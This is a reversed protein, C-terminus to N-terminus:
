HFAAKDMAAIQDPAYGAQVLEMLLAHPDENITKAKPPEMPEPLMLARHRAEGLDEIISVPRPKGGKELPPLDVPRVRARWDIRRQCVGDQLTRLLTGWDRLQEIIADADTLDLKRLDRPIPVTITEGKHEVEAEEKQVYEFISEAM